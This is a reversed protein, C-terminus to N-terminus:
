QKYYEEIKSVCNTIIDTVDLIVESEVDSINIKAKNTNNNIYASFYGVHVNGKNINGSASKFTNKITDYSSDGTVIYEDVEFKFNIIKQENTIEFTGM